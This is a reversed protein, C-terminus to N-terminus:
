HEAQNTDTSYSGEAMDDQPGDCSEVVVPKGQYNPHTSSDGYMLYSVYKNSSLQYYYTIEWHCINQGTEADYECKWCKQQVWEAQARALNDVDYNMKKYGTFELIANVLNEFISLFADTIPNDTKEMKFETMDEVSRKYHNLTEIILPTNLKIGCGVDKLHGDYQGLVTKEFPCTKAYDERLTKLREATKYSSNNECDEKTGCLGYQVLDSVLEEKSSNNEVYNNISVNGLPSGSLVAFTAIVGVFVMLIPLLVILYIVKRFKLIVGIVKDATDGKILGGSLATIAKAGTKRVIPNINDKPLENNENITGNDVTSDNFHSFPNVSQTIRNKNTINNFRETLSKDNTKNKFVNNKMLNPSVGPKINSKNYQNKNQNEM